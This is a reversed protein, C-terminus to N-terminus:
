LPAEGLEVELITKIQAMTERNSENNWILWVKESADYHYEDEPILRQISQLAKKYPQAEGIWRFDDDDLTVYIFNERTDIKM